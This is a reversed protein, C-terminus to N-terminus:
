IRGSSRTLSSSDLSSPIRCDAVEQVIIGHLGPAGPDTHLIGSRYQNRIHHQALCHPRQCPPTITDGPLPQGANYQGQELLRSETELIILHYPCGVTVEHIMATKSERIREYRALCTGLSRLQEVTKVPLRLPNRPYDRRSQFTVFM